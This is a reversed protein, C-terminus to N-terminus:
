NPVLDYFVKYAIAIIQIKITFTISLSQLKEILLATLPCSWTQPEWLDSQM